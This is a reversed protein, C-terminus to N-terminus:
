YGKYLETGKETNVTSDQTTRFSYTRMMHYLLRSLSLIILTFHIYVDFNRHNLFWNFRFQLDGDHPKPLQHKTGLTGTSCKPYDSYDVSELHFGLVKQCFRLSMPISFYNINTVLSIHITHEPLGRGHM